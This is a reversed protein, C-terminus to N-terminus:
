TKPKVTNVYNEQAIQILNEGMNKGTEMVLDYFSGKQQLLTYPHDFEVVFGDDMVLVKDSDMITHLRHAITLVTCNKFNKRITKQLLEDTHPDVNATAEDLILIKNSRLLARALCILQKQGVSFNAGGEALNSHLGLPLYKVFEKLKVEELVNWIQEDRYQDFPDLNKRVPGSFLIPEQPIISIKSRLNALSIEKTNVGDIYVRGEFTVLRFLVSILSSKGAGTRGVIGIKEKPKILFNLNKLVYPDNSSYRMLVSNFEIKGQDPWLVSPDKTKEDSERDVEIYEVVREVSTMQNELESWQRVGWQFMGTLSMAQTIVFGVNGGYKEGMLSITTVILVYLVCISDLWTAFARKCGLFMYFVSSHVNQYNDFERELIQRAGFARITTLGKMSETLHAFIPSRNTAEMRKVSRSTAMYVIRIVYMIVFIAFTPIITWPSVLCIALTTGVVALGMQITDMLMRPLTEDLSGVDKAFRNLIRGSSNTHFFRMTANVISSFMKNHLGVSAHMCTKVFSMSRVISLVILAGTAFLETFIFLTMIIVCGLYTGGARIYTTYVKKSVKGSSRTEKVEEQEEHDKIEAPTQVTSLEETQENTQTDNLLKTFNEGSAQLDAYTGSVVIAGDTVLYIKDVSTLYQIQHTVLVTCKNKLYGSICNNFIQKGVSADVASLPDDLLYIDAEKYIARALNIRAKQGGSLLIGREGVITNDGYPFQAVDEELACIKIVERYKERVMPQGFLINQKITGAFLWPEQNAYSIRGGIIVSGKVLPIESLCLQLLSSKGSGIPGIIAVIENPKAEFNIDSLTNQISDQSWKATANEINIGNRNTTKTNNQIEDLNLFNEFRKVAVNAQLIGSVADPLYMSVSDMLMDYFSCVVFVYQANPRNGTLVYTLICLFIATRDIFFAFSNTLADLYNAIKILKVEKRYFRGNPSNGFKATVNVKIVQIGSIIENMYRIREDAKLAIKLRYVSSKKSMFLQLPILVVLFIIGVLATPGSILYLLCLIIVAEPPSAWVAHFLGWFNVLEQMDNSLLNIIHGVTTQSLASKSLRLAKRYILSSCAVRVKISMQQFHMIYAHGLVADGFSAVIILFAYIITDGKSTDTQDPSYYGMLKGLALPRSIKLIFEIFFYLAMSLSIDWKFIKWIAKWLSPKLNQKLQDDWAKELKKALRNSEHERLTQYLDEESLEKKLGKKFIPITWSFRKLIEVFTGLLSYKQQPHVKM